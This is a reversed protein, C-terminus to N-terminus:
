LVENDSLDEKLVDKLTDCATQAIPKVWAELNNLEKMIVQLLNEWTQKSPQDEQRTITIMVM